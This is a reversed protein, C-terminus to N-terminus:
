LGKAAEALWDEFSQSFSRFLAIHFSDVDDQWLTVGIHAMVTTAVADARFIAPNMDIYAGRQILTRASPGSLRFVAYGSSQDSVSALGSLRTRLDEIWDPAPEERLVLWTGPGTGIAQWGSHATRFPGDRVALGLPASLSEAAVGKRAMISAIGLSRRSTLLFSKDM